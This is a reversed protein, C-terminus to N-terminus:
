MKALSHTRLISCGDVGLVALSCGLWEGVSSKFVHYVGHVTIYYYQHFTSWLYINIGLPLIHVIIIQNIYRHLLLNLGNKIVSITPTYIYLKLFGYM